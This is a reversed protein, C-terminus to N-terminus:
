ETPTTTSNETGVNDSTSDTEESDEEVEAAPSEVIVIRTSTATNGSNDTAVYSIAWEGAESTDVSIETINRGLYEDNRWVEYGLNSDVNDTVTAGLDNYVSFLEIIAPNNGQLTIVPPTTDTEDNIIPQDNPTSLQNNELITRLQDKNVCVDEICLEKSAIFREAIFDRATVVKDGLWELIKDFIIELFSEDDVINAIIEEVPM